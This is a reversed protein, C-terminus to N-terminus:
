AVGNGDDHASKTRKFITPIIGGSDSDDFAPSQLYPACRALQLIEFFEQRFLRHRSMEADAVRTPGRMSARGLFIRMRVPVALAAHDHRM